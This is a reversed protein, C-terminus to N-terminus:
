SVSVLSPMVGHVPSLSHSPPLVLPLSCFLSLSLSLSLSPPSFAFALSIM